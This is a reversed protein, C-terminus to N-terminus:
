EEGTNMLLAAPADFHQVIKTQRESSLDQFWSMGKLLQVSIKLSEPSDLDSLLAVSPLNLHKSITDVTDLSSSCGKEIDCLTTKGIGIEEAFDTLSQNSMNRLAKLNRSLNQKLEM